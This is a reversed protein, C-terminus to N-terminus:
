RDHRKYGKKYNKIRRLSECPNYPEGIRGFLRFASNLTEEYKRAIFEEALKRDSDSLKRM